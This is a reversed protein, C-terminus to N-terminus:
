ARAREVPDKTEARRELAPELEVRAGPEDYQNSAIGASIIARFAEDVSLRSDRVDDRPVLVYFGTTPNPAKPIFVKLLEPEGATSELGMRGTIFGYTWLGRRPFEVLVVRKFGPHGSQTFIAEMFQKLVLYLSRAVPIRDILSEWMGLLTRGVLSRALAGVLFIVGLTVLIGVFRPQEAEMGFFRYFKPLILGDLQALVWLVGVITAVTPVFALLGAVFNRRLTDSIERLM